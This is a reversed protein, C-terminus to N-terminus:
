RSCRDRMLRVWNHREAEAMAQLVSAPRSPQSITTPSCAAWRAPGAAGAPRALCSRGPALAVCFDSSATLLFAKPHHTAAPWAAIAQGLAAGGGRVQLEHNCATGSWLYAIRSFGSHSHVLCTARALIVLDAMVELLPTLSRAEYREWHVPTGPVTSLEPMFRKEAVLKRVEINDTVLVQVRAVGCGPPCRERAAAEAAERATAALSHSALWNRGSRSVLKSANLAQRPKLFDFYTQALTKTCDVADVVEHVSVPQKHHFLDVAEGLSGGLRLHLATFPGADAELGLLAMHRAAAQLLSPRTPLQAPQQLSPLFPGPQGGGALWGPGLLQLSAPSNPLVALREKGQFGPAQRATRGGQSSAAGAAWRRGQRGQLRRDPGPGAGRQRSQGQARCSVQITAPSAAFLATFACHQAMPTTMLDPLGPLPTSPADNVEVFLFQNTRNHISGDKIKPNSTYMVREALAPLQSPQVSWDILHPVLFEELSAPSNQRVLLLRQTTVALRLVSMIGRLRDSLGHCFVWPLKKGPPLECSWVLYKVGAAPIGKSRQEKAWRIYELLWSMKPVDCKAHWQAETM